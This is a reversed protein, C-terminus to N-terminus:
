HAHVLVRRDKVAAAQNVEALPQQVPPWDCLERREDLLPAQEHECLRADVELRQVVHCTPPHTLPPPPPCPPSPRCRRHRQHKTPARSQVAQADVESEWKRGEASPTLLLSCPLTRLSNSGASCHATGAHCHTPAAAAQMATHPHPPQQQWGYRVVCDPCCSIKGHRQTCGCRRPLTSQM